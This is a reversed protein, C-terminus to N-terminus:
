AEEPFQQDRFKCWDRSQEHRSYGISIHAPIIVGFEDEEEVLEIKDIAVDFGELLGKGWAWIELDPLELLRRAIEHITM